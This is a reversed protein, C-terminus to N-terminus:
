HRYFVAFSMNLAQVYLVPCLAQLISCLLSRYFLACNFYRHQIVSTVREPEIQIYLMQPTGVKIMTFIVEHCNRPQAQVDPDMVTRAEKKDEILLINEVGRQLFSLLILIFDKLSTFYNKRESFYFKWYIQLNVEFFLQNSNLFNLM